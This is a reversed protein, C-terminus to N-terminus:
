DFIETQMIPGLQKYAAATVAIMVLQLLTSILADFGLSVNNAAAEPLLLALLAGVIASMIIMLVFGILFLMVFFGLLGAANGRTQEWSARMLDLPNQQGSHAAHPVIFLLRVLLYLGPIVLLVLGMGILISSLFTAIFVGIFLKLGLGIADGVSTGPPGVLIRYLAISGITGAVISAFTWPASALLMDRVLAVMQDASTVAAASPPLPTLISALLSPLFYFVGAIPLLLSQNARLMAMSDDWARGMDLKRM